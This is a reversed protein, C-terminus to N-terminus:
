KNRYQLYTNLGEIQRLETRFLAERLENDIRVGRPSLDARLQSFLKKGESDLDTLIQVRSGKEISEAVAYLPKGTLEVIDTFGLAALAARDKKGEVITLLGKKSDILELVKQVSADSSM